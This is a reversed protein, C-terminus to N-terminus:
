FRDRGISRIGSPVVVDINTGIYCIVQITASEILFEGAIVRLFGGDGQRIIERLDTACFASAAVSKLAAPIWHSSLLACGAFARDDIRALSYDAEFRVASLRFRDSLCEECLFEVPLLIGMLLLSSCRHFESATM